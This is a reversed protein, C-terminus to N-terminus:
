WTDERPKEPRVLTTVVSVAFQDATYGTANDVGGRLMLLVEADTAAELPKSWGVICDTCGCGYPDIRNPRGTM